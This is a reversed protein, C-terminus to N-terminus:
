GGSHPNLITEYTSMMETEVEVMQAPSVSIRPLPTRDFQRPLLSFLTSVRSLSSLRVAGRPRELSPPRLHNRHVTHM